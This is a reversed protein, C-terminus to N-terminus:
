MHEAWYESHRICKEPGEWAGQQTIPPTRAGLGKPPRLGDYYVRDLKIQDNTEPSGLKAGTFDADSVNAGRLDAGRLDTDTFNAGDLDACQLYAKQLSSTGWISNRLDAGRLDIGLFYHGDLWSFDIGEWPQGRLQVEALDVGVFSDTELAEVKSRLRMMGQLEEAAYVNDSPVDPVGYGLGGSVPDDPPNRLYNELVDLAATYLLAADEDSTAASLQSNVHRRLLALGGVREGPQDGGIAAIATSLRAESAQREIGERTTDVSEGALQAARLAVIV